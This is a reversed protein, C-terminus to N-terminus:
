GVADLLMWCRVADLMWCCGVDLMWCNCPVHLQPSLIKEVVNMHQVFLQVLMLWRCAWTGTSGLLSLLRTQIARSVLEPNGLCSALVTEAVLCIHSWYVYSGIVCHQQVVMEGGRVEM